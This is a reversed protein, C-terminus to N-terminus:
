KELKRLEDDLFSLANQLATRHVPSQSARLENAVRTRSLELSSKKENHEREDQGGRERRDERAAQRDEIQSQVSKSEFGRAM